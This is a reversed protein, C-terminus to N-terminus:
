MHVQIEVHSILIIGIDSRQMLIGCKWIDLLVELYSILFYHWLHVPNKVICRAPKWVHSVIVVHPLQKMLVTHTQNSRIHSVSGQSDFLGSLLQWWIKIVIKGFDSRHESAIWWRFVLRFFESLAAAVSIEWTFDVFNASFASNM